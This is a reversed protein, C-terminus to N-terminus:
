VSEIYTAEIRTDTRRVSQLIVYTGATQLAQLFAAVVFSTANPAVSSMVIAAVTFLGAFVVDLRLQFQLVEEARKRTFIDESSVSPARPSVFRLSTAQVVAALFLFVIAVYAAACTSASCEPLVPSLALWAGAIFLTLAGAVGTFRKVNYSYSMDMISFYLVMCAVGGAVKGAIADKFPVTAASAILACVGVAKRGISERKYLVTESDGALM